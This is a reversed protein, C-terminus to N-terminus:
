FLIKNNEYHTVFLHSTHCFNAKAEPPTNIFEVSLCNKNELILDLFTARKAVASLAWPVTVRVRPERL